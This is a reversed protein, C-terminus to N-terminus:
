TVISRPAGSPSYQASTTKVYEPLPSSNISGGYAQVLQYGFVQVSGSSKLLGVGIASGKMVGPAVSLTFRQWTTTVTISSASPAYGFYLDSIALTIPTTGSSVRLWVAFTWGTPSTMGFISQALWAYNSTTATFTYEFASTGGFPDAIGSTLADGSTRGYAGAAQNESYFLLNQRRDRKTTLSLPASTTAVYAAPTIQGPYAVELQMGGVAVQEQSGASTYFTGGNSNALIIYAASTGVITPASVSCRYVGAVNTPEINARVGTAKGGVAGNVLDFYAYNSSIQVVFWGSGAVKTAYCSFVVPTKDALPTQFNQQLYYNLNTQATDTLIQMATVGTPKTGGYAGLSQARTLTWPSSSINESQALLNRVNDRGVMPSDNVFTPSGGFSLSVPGLTARATTGAGDDLPWRHSITSPLVSGYYDDAVQTATWAHGIDLTADAVTGLFSSGSVGIGLTTDSVSGSWLSPGSIGFLKGDKYLTITYTSADFVVVIHPWDRDVFFNNFTAVAGASKVYCYLYAGYQTFMWGTTNYSSSAFLAKTSSAFDRAKAWIRATWSGSGPALTASTAAALYDNSTPSYFGGGYHRTAKRRPM